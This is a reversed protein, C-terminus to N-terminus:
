ARPELSRYYDAARWPLGAALTRYLAFLFVGVNAPEFIERAQESSRPMDAIQEFARQIAAPDDGDVIVGKGLLANVDVFNGTGTSITPLGLLAGERMVRAQAEWRSLLMVGRCERLRRLM